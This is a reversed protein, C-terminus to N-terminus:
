DLKKGMQRALQSLIVSAPRAQGKAPLASEFKQRTGQFNVFTGSIESYAACPLAVLAQDVTRSHAPSLVVAAKGKLDADHIPIAEQVLL